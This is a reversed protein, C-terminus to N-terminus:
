SYDDIEGTGHAPVLRAALAMFNTLKNENPCPVAGFNKQDAFHPLAPM